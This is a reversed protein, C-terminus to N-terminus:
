YHVHTHQMCKDNQQCVSTIRKVLVIGVGRGRIMEASDEVSARLVYGGLGEVKEM